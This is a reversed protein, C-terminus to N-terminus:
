QITYETYGGSRDNMRLTKMATTKADVVLVFSTFLKRKKGQPTITLTQRGNKTVSTMDECTPVPQGNIVATLVKQFTAFQANKRSDTTQKRKGMTMTFKTGEMILQDQDNDTSICIYDPKRITLTGTSVVDEKVAKQHRTKTVTQAQANLALLCFLFLIIKKM